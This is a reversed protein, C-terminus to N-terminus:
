KSGLHKLRAQHIAQTVEAKARTIAADGSLRPNKRQLEAALLAVAQRRLRFNTAPKM